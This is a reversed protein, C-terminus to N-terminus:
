RGISRRAIEIWDTGGNNARHVPREKPSPDVPEDKWHGGELWRVPGKTYRQEQGDREAAYRMAGAILEEVTAEGATVVCAFAREADKFGVRKPYHNMFERFAAKTSAELEGGPRHPSLPSDGGEGIPSPTNKLSEPTYAHVGLSLGHVGLGDLPADGHVGLSEIPAGAHVELDADLPADNHVGVTAILDFALNFQNPRHRSGRREIKLWGAKELDQIAMITARRKLGAGAGLVEYSPDCRGTRGNLHNLVLAVAVAKAAAPLSPDAVIAQLLRAKDLLSVSM